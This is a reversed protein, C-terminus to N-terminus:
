SAQRPEKKQSQQTKENRQERACIICVICVIGNCCNEVFRRLDATTDAGFSAANKWQRSFDSQWKM